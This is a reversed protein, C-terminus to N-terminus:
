YFCNKCTENFTKMASCSVPIIYFRTLLVNNLWRHRHSFSGVLQPRIEMYIKYMMSSFRAYNSACPLTVLSRTNDYVRDYFGRYACDLWNVAFEGIRDFYCSPAGLTRVSFNTTSKLLWWSHGLKCECIVFIFMSEIIYMCLMLCYPHWHCSILIYLTQDFRFLFKDHFAKIM